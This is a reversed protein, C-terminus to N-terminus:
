KIYEYIIEKDTKDINFVETLWMDIYHNANNTIKKIKDLNPIYIGLDLIKNPYYEYLKEGVKKGICKFYFEFIKSNLYATLYEYSIDLTLNTIFYVDASCFYKEKDYYFINNKAKYPFVIKAQEFKEIDRGWQLEYWKRIGLKCERRQSLRNKFNNLYNITNPYNNVDNILNTYIVYKNAYEIGEKSINSNKIWKRLLRIELNFTEIEKDSVIFAKDYGTIIGQRIKCKDKLKYNCKSDIKNFLKEEESTLIKWYKNKLNSQKYEYDKFNEFSDNYIKFNFKNNFSNKNILNIIIPSINVNKFVRLGNFDIMSDIKFKNKIFERLRDAYQAELFYRSTIYSLCGEHKLIDRGKKLFCYSIDSKDHYVESYETLLKRKYNKDTKKHGIYPPNGIIIDFKNELSNFEELLFDFNYINLSVNNCNSNFLLGMKSLFVSFKDMDNGYIINELIYKDIEEIPKKPQQEIFVDRIEKFAEILFYGGGCAPDLLKIRKNIPKMTFTKNLMLKIIYNPTYVQGLYNKERVTLMKEYLEGPIFNYLNIFENKHKILITTLQDKIKDNQMDFCCYEKFIQMERKYLKDESLLEVTELNLNNDSIKSYFLLQCSAYIIYRIIDLYSKDEKYNNVLKKIDKIFKRDM